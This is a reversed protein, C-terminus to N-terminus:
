IPETEWTDGEVLHNRWLVKVSAVEKNRLKKVQRDLIEVPAEEYSLSEYVGLGELYIISVSDGICKKLMSVHFVLHVSALENPLDLEYAVKGIRKVIQYSGVYRPSLKGKKGFRMEGKM